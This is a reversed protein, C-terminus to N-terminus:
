EFFLVQPFSCIRYTHMNAKYQTPTPTWEAGAVTGSLTYGSAVMQKVGVSLADLIHTIRQKSKGTQKIVQSIQLQLMELAFIHM